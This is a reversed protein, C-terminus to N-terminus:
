IDMPEIPDEDFEDDIAGEEGAAFFAAGLAEVQESPFLELFEDPAFETM